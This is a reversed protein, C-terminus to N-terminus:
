GIREHWPRKPGLYGATGGKHEQRASTSGCHISVSCGRRRELSWRHHSMWSWTALGM